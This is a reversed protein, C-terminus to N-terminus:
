PYCREFESDGLQDLTMPNSIVVTNAQTSLHTAAVRKLDAVQVKLINQRYRQRYEPSRGHLQNFFAKIAEGAPSAPRDLHSIVGLIAEEIQRDAHTNEQLWDLARDFDALTAKLRPDRYSYFQFSGNDGDYYAGGGYAGGRERLATHLYGNRLFQGLVTLAPADPHNSPVTHYSKVCSNVQVSAQWAQKILKPNTPFHFPTFPATSTPSNAQDLLDLLSTHYEPESVILYQRPAKLLQQHIQTLQQTFQTIEEPHTLRQDLKKLIQINPFGHWLHSLQGTPSHSSNATLLALQHGRSSISHETEARYQTILEQLRTFEDFRVQELTAQLLETLATRNRILAKGSLSFLAHTQQTDTIPSRLSIHAHIGGSVAAQWHATDLYNKGACGLETMLDCFLPLLNILEEKFEPLQIIVKQYVMGNTAQGFCTVPHIRSHLTGQPIKLQTPVDELGIKPLQEADDPTNQRQTLAATQQLIATRQEETLQTQLTALQATEQAQQRTALQSDPVMVLHVRHPNDLLLQQILQKVLQPDQSQTRLKELGPDIDLFPLPDGGHILPSLANILLNLGYPFHDGTIERQNLEMQHLVAEIQPFPVGENAIHELTQLILTEVAEAQDPESGELGCAFFAERPNDELGCLPSPGTGLPSTELAHRLPSGSHGLLLETLLNTQMLTQSDTTNGLLWALVVHTKQQLDENDNIPYSTVVQLPTSYRQEDPIQLHLPIKQFHQLAYEEFQQQHDTAPRDGYTMFIANSPHYHTAHFTKLQSYTLKPIDLPNGGSNHHYTITPYLHSELTQFLLSIPSSMAGKMENFVIGKYVLPTNPNTPDTFELRHGEQAFDLPNLNPFFAADLYVKLLNDFDKPIQSAFLYATWDSSTLANMYTNLSRRLMSFFPDRVPYNRSGCLSTHELVHAIGTSDQPVTLFALLFANNNDEAVLHFHRSGTPLHQYDEVTMKLSPIDVRRILSFNPSTM